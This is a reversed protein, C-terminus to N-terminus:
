TESGHGALPHWQCVIGVGNIRRETGDSGKGALARSGLGAVRPVSGKALRRQLLLDEFEVVVTILVLM